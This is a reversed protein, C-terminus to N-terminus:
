YETSLKSDAAESAFQGVQKEREVTFQSRYILRVIVFLPQALLLGLWWRDGTIGMVLFPAYGVLVEWWKLPFLTLVFFSYAGLYPAGATTAALLYQLQQHRRTTRDRSRILFVGVVSVLLWLPAIYFWADGSFVTQPTYTLWRQVWDTGYMLFSLLAAAIPILWTRWGGWLALALIAFGMLQPKTAMLLLGVGVWVRREQKLSWWALALGVAAIIDIQGLWLVWLFPLSFLAVFPNAGLRRAAWFAGIMSLACMVLYGTRWSNFVGLPRMFWETFYPNYTCSICGTTLRHFYGKYDFGGPLLAIGILIVIAVEAYVIAQWRPSSLSRLALRLRQPFTRKDRSSKTPVPEADVGVSNRM